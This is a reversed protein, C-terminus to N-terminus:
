SHRRSCRGEGAEFLTASEGEGGEELPLSSLRHSLDSPDIAGTAM